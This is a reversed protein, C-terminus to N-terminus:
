AAFSHRFHSSWQRPVARRCSCILSECRTHNSCALNETACGAARVTHGATPQVSAPRTARAAHNVCRQRADDWCAWARCPAGAKTTDTCRRRARAQDSYAM